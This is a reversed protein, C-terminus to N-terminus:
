PNAGHEAVQELQWKRGLHRRWILSWGVFIAAALLIFLAFQWGNDPIAGLSCAIVAIMFVVLIRSTTRIYRPGYIPGLDGGHSLRLEFYPLKPMQNIALLSMVAMLVGLTRYIAWLYGPVDVAYSLVVLLGELLLMGICYSVALFEGWKYWPQLRAVDAKARFRNRYLDGALLASCAPFVFLLLSPVAGRNQVALTTWDELTIIRAVAAVLMLAILAACALATKRDIM